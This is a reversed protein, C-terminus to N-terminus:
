GVGSSLGFYRSAFTRSPKLRSPPGGGLSRHPRRASVVIPGCAIRDGTVDVVAVGTAARARPGSSGHERPDGSRGGREVRGPDRPLVRHGPPDRLSDPPLRRRHGQQLGLTLCLQGVHTSLGVALLLVWETGHPLLFSRIVVPLSGLISVFAFYFLTVLPEETRLRRVMVYAGASFVAGALAISVAASDLGSPEGSLFPPRAVLLVGFLGFLALLIEAAHVAEGLVPAALLATFVPNTYQIVTAEALPLHIVSFYSCTLATFGVLGRVFLLRPEKGPLAGSRGRLGWLCLALVVLSRALVIEMTPLRAGAAKVLAGMISFCLASAAMYRLGIPFRTL